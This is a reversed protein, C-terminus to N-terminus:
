NLESIIIPGPILDGPTEGRGSKGIKCLFTVKQASVQSSWKIISMVYRYSVAKNRRLLNSGDFLHKLETKLKIGRGRGTNM